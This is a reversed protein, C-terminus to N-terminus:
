PTGVADPKSKALVECFQDQMKTFPRSAKKFGNFLVAFAYMRRDPTEVYGSLTRVGGIYGTKACVLGPVDKMRRKLTGDRGAVALSRAFLPWGPHKHMYALVQVMARASSRNARSLGSADAPVVHGEEVGVRKLFDEVAARGTAWSGRPNAEGAARAFAYGTRKLLAEAFLNQSDKGVRAAVHTLPTTHVLVVACDPPLRGQEDRVRERRIKGEIRIGRNALHTRLVDAFFMGPDPVALSSKTEATCTGSLQYEFTPRPRYLVPANKGKAASKGRNRVEVLGNPPYVSWQVPDGAKAAPQITFLVTNEYLNLAGPPAAYARGIDESPWQPHDRAPEFISEDIVLDGALVELGKERLRAAWGDFLAAVPDSPKGAGEPDALSPDGDGVVILDDGRTAVVTRFEFGPGLVDIAAALSFVKANSAPILTEDGHIDLLVKGTQLDVVVAGCVAGPEPKPGLVAQLQEELTAGGAQGALLGLLASCLIFNRSRNMLRPQM